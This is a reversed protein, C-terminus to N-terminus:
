PQNHNRRHNESPMLYSDNSPSKKFFLSAVRTVNKLDEQALNKLIEKWCDENLERNANFTFISDCATSLAQKRALGKQRQAQIKEGLYAYNGWNLNELVKKFKENQSMLMLKNEDKEKCLDLLSANGLSKISTAVESLAAIVEKCDNWLTLISQERDINYPKKTNTNNLLTAIILVRVIPLTMAGRVGYWSIAYELPTGGNKDVTNVDAGHKLLLAIIEEEFPDLQKITRFLPTVGKKDVANVDAGYKLLLAVIKSDPEYEKIVHLLPTDGEKDVTNADAGHKLLLAVMESNPKYKKTISLLPTIGENNVTNVDAGHKILFAVKQLYNLRVLTHLPTDGNKDAVNIDAGHELLLVLTERIFTPFKEEKCKYFIAEHEWGLVAIYLPTRGNKDVANVNAGHEILLAAIRGTTRHLPTDGNKNVMNVDAGCKILRVVTEYKDMWRLNKDFAPQNLVRHLATDGNKDVKNLNIRRLIFCAIVDYVHNIVKNLNIKTKYIFLGLRAYADSIYLASLRFFSRLKKLSM